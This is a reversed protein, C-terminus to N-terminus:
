GLRPDSMYIPTVQCKGSDIDEKTIFRDLKGECIFVSRHVACLAFTVNAEESFQYEFPFIQTGMNSGDGYDTYVLELDQFDERVRDASGEEHLLDRAKELKEKTEESMFGEEETLPVPQEDDDSSKKYDDDFITQPKSPLSPPAEIETEDKMQTDEPNEDQEMTGTEDTVVEGTEQQSVKPKICGFLLLLILFLCLIRLINSKM